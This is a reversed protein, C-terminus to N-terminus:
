PCRRVRAPMSLCAYHSSSEKLLGLAPPFATTDLARNGTPGIDLGLQVELFKNLQRLQGNEGRLQTVIRMADDIINTKDTKAAKGPELVKALEAFRCFRLHLGCLQCRFQRACDPSAGLLISLLLAHECYGPLSSQCGLGSCPARTVSHSAGADAM